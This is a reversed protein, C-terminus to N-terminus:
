RSPSRCSTRPNGARAAAVGDDLLAVRAAVHRHVRERVVPRQEGLVVPLQVRVERQKEPQAVLHDAHEDVLVVDVRVEHRGVASMVDHRGRVDPRQQRRAGDREAARQDAVLEADPAPQDLGVAVVQAGADAEGVPEAAVVLGHESAPEADEMRGARGLARAVDHRAVREAVVDGVRPRRQLLPERRADCRADSPKPFWPMWSSRSLGSM